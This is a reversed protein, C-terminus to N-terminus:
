TTNVAEIIEIRPKVRRGLLGRRAPQRLSKEVLGAKVRGKRPVRVMDVTRGLAELASRQSALMDLFGDSKKPFVYATDFDVGPNGHAGPAPFYKNWANQEQTAGCRPALV